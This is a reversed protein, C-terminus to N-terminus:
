IPSEEHVVLVDCEAAFLNLIMGPRASRFWAQTAFFGPTFVACQSRLISMVQMESQHTALLLRHDQELVVTYLM